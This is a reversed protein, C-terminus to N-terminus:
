RLLRLISPHSVSVTPTTIDAHADVWLIGTEPKAKLLGAISGIAVSHDGGLTLCFDDSNRMEFTRKALKQPDSCFFVVCIFLNLVFSADQCPVIVSGAIGVKSCHGIAAANKANPVVPADRPVGSMDIDGHDEM